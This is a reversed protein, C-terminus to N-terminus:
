LITLFEGIDLSGDFNDDVIEVTVGDLAAFLTECGVLQFVQNSLPQWVQGLNSWSLCSRWPRLTESFPAWFFGRPQNFDKQLFEPTESNRKAPIGMNPAVVLFAGDQLRKLNCPNGNIFSFFHLKQEKKEAPTFVWITNRPLFGPHM